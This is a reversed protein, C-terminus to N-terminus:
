WFLSDGLRSLAMPASLLVERQRREVGALVAFRLLDRVVDARVAAHITTALDQGEFVGGDFLDRRCWFQPPADNLSRM